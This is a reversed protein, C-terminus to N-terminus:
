EIFVAKIMLCKQGPQWQESDLVVVPVKLHLNVIITCKEKHDIDWLTQDFISFFWGEQERSASFGCSFICEM